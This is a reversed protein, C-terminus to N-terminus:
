FSAKVRSQMTVIACGIDKRVAKRDDKCLNDLLPAGLFGEVSRAVRGRVQDADSLATIPLAGSWFHLVGYWVFCAHLFSDVTLPTGSWPSIVRTSTFACSDGPGWPMEHITMYLLSHMAEHVITETLMIDSVHQSHPNDLIMLGAHRADSGSAFGSASDLGRLLIVQVFRAVFKAVVENVVAVQDWATALRDLVMPRVDNSLPGYGNSNIPRDPGWKSSRTNPSDVDLAPLGPITAGQIIGGTRLAKIDGLATWMDREAKETGSVVAEVHLAQELFKCVMPADPHQWFLRYTFDPALAVRLFDRAPVTELRAILRHALAKDRRECRGLARGIEEDVRAVYAGFVADLGAQSAKGWQLVDPM